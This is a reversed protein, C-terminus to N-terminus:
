ITKAPMKKEVYLKQKRKAPLIPSTRDAAIGFRVKPAERVKKLSLSRTPTSGV